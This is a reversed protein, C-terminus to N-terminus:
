LSLPLFLPLFPFFYFPGLICLLCLLGDGSRCGLFPLLCLGSIIALHYSFCPKYMHRSSFARLDLSSYLSPQWIRTSSISSVKTMCHATAASPSPACVCVCEHAREAHVRVPYVRYYHYYHYFFAGIIIMIYYYSSASLFCM